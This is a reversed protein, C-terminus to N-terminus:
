FWIFTTLQLVFAKMVSIDWYSKCFLKQLLKQSTLGKCLPLLACYYDKLWQACQAVMEWARPHPLTSARTIFLSRWRLQVPRDYEQGCRTSRDGWSEESRCRCHHYFSSLSPAANDIDAPHPTRHMHLRHALTKPSILCVTATWALLACDFWNHSDM